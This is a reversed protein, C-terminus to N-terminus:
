RNDTENSGTICTVETSCDLILSRVTHGSEATAQTARESLNVSLAKQNGRLPDRHWSGPNAGHAPDFWAVLFIGAAGPWRALYRDVLQTELAHKIEDNWNGKVEIVVRLVRGSDASSPVQVLLDVRRGIGSLRTRMVQVERNVIIEPVSREIDRQIYDSIDDETKPKCPPGHNWLFTAMPTAGRMSLQTQHLTELIAQLLDDDNRLIRRASSLVEVIEAPRLPTWDARGLTARARAALRKFWPNDPRTEALRRLCTVAAVSGREALAPLLRDRFRGISERHSIRHAGHVIPDESPPFRQQTLDWLEILEPEALTTAEFQQGDALSGIVYEALAPDAMLPQRVQKWGSSGTRAIIIAAFTRLQDTGDATAVRVLELASQSDLALLLEFAACEDIAPEEILRVLWPVVAPTLVPALNRLMSDSHEPKGRMEKEAAALIADPAKEYVQRLVRILPPVDSSGFLNQVVAPALFRWRDQDLDPVIDRQALLVLARVVAIVDPSYKDTGLLDEGNHTTVALFEQAASVVLLQQEEDLLAWGPLKTIRLNLPDQAYRNGAKYEVTMSFSRFAEPATLTLSDLLRDKIEDETPASRHGARRRPAPAPPHLLYHVVQHYLPSENPVTGLAAQHDARTQEHLPSLWPWWRQAQAESATATIQDLVWCFDDPGVLGADRLDWVGQRDTPGRRLDLLLKRRVPDPIEPLTSSRERFLEGSTALRVRILRAVETRVTTSDLRRLGALLIADSLEGTSRALASHAASELEAAWAVAKRTEEETLTASALRTPLERALFSRYGGFFHPSRPEALRLTIDAPSEGGHLLARLGVSLLEDEDDGPDNEADALVTLLSTTGGDGLELATRGALTRLSVSQRSNLAIEVLLGALSVLQNDLALLVALHRADITAEPDTLVTRLRAALGEYALGAFGMGYFDPLEYRQALELMREILTQRYAPDTLEVSSRLFSVPDDDLLGIFSAPALAVLWAAVAQVQPALRGGRGRLLTDLQTPALGSGVLYRAALFEAITQHTFRFEDDGTSEFLATRVAEAYGREACDEPTLRGQAPEAFLAFSTRGTFLSLVALRGAAELLRSVDSPAAPVRYLPNPEAVLRRCSREFLDRQTGPLALDGSLFEDVLLELMKPSAALPMANASQLARRFSDGDIGASQAYRAADESTLPALDFIALDPFSQQLVHGVGPSWAASRCAVVLRMGAPLGVAVEEVLGALASPSLSCEDLSDLALLADFRGAVRGVAREIKSALRVESDSSALSVLEGTGDLSRALEQLETSKGAGPPALFVACRRAAAERTSLLGAISGRAVATGVQHAGRM